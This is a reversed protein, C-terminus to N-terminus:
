NKGNRRRDTRGLEADDDIADVVHRLLEHEHTRAGIRESSRVFGDTRRLDIPKLASHGSRHLCHRRQTLADDVIRKCEPREIAAGRLQARAHGHEDRLQVLEGRRAFGDRCRQPWGAAELRCAIDDREHDRSDRADLRGHVTHFRGLAREM